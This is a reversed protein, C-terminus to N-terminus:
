KCYLQNHNSRKANEYRKGDDKTNLIKGYFETNDKFAQANVFVRVFKKNRIIKIQEVDGKKVIEFYKQQTIEVGASDVSRFLNYSVIALFIIGYIWYINFKPKKKQSDEGFPPRNSPNNPQSM